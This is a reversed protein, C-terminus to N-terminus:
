LHLTKLNKNISEFHWKPLLLPCTDITPIFNDCLFRSGSPLFFPPPTLGGQHCPNEMVELQQLFDNDKTTWQRKV